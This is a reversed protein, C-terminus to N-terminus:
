WAADGLACQPGAPDEECGGGAGALGAGRGGALGEALVPEGAVRGIM